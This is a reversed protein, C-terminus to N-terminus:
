MYQVILNKRHIARPILIQLDIGTIGGYQCHSLKRFDQWTNKDMLLSCCLSIHSPSIECLGQNFISCFGQAKSCFPEIEFTVLIELTVLNELM